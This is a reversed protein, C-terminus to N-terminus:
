VNLRSRRFCIIRCAYFVSYFLKTFVFVIKGPFIVAGSSLVPDAPLPISSRTASFCQEFKKENWVQCSPFYRLRAVGVGEEEEGENWCVNKQHSCTEVFWLKITEEKVWCKRANCGNLVWVELINLPVIGVNSLFLCEKLFLQLLLSSTADFSDWWVSWPHWSVHHVQKKGTVTKSMDISKRSTDWRCNCHLRTTTCSPVSDYM